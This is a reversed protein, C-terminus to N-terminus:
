KEKKKDKEAVGHKEYLAMLEKRWRANEIRGKEIKENAARILIEDKKELGALKARFGGYLLEAGQVYIGHLNKLAESQLHIKRLLDLFRKYNPIVYDGLADCVKQDSTYNKGTVAAYRELSRKELEAISLIDQNVYEVLELAVKDTACCVLFLCIGLFFLIILIKNGKMVM